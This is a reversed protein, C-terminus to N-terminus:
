KPTSVPSSPPPEAFSEKLARVPELAFSVLSRRGVVIDALGGMGPRLPEARGQVRIISDQLDVLARFAGSDRETSGSPGLWRVTGFRVGYRQYPFADFRLKVGQGARVMPVGAQPLELEGQLRAGDCAIESLVEGEKVV